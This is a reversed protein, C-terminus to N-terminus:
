RSVHRAEAKIRRLRALIEQREPSLVGINTELNYKHVTMYRDELYYFHELTSSEMVYVSIMYRHDGFHVEDPGWVADATVFIQAPSIEPVSWFEYQSQNSVSVDHAFLDQLANGRGPQLLALHIQWASVGGAAVSFLIAPLDKKLQVVTATPNNGSLFNEFTRSTYCQRSPPGEICISASGNPFDGPVNDNREPQTITIKRGMFTPLAPSGRNSQASIHPLGCLLLLASVPRLRTLCRV